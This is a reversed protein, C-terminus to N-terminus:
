QSDKLVQISWLSGYTTSIVIHDHTFFKARTAPESIQISSVFELIQDQDTFRWLNLIGDRDASLVLDNEAEVSVIANSHEHHAELLSFDHKATNM